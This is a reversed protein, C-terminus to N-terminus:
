SLDDNQGPLRQMRENSDGIQAIAEQLAAPLLEKEHEKKQITDFIMRFNARISMEEDVGASCITSWNLRKVTERTVPDFSEMAEAENTYGYRGIARKVSKWGESWDTAGGSVIGTAKERLESITPSWKSTHVHAKLAAMAHNFELDKLEEYWLAMAEQSPLVNDKPYYSKMASALVAFERKEM